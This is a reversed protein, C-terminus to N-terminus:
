LCKQCKNFKLHSYNKQHNAEAEELTTFEFWGGDSLEKKVGKNATEYPKAYSCSRYHATCSQNPFDVNMWHM